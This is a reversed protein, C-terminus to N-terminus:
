IKHIFIKKVGEKQQYQMHADEQYDRVNRHKESWNKTLYNKSIRQFLATLIIQNSMILILIQRGERRYQKAIKLCYFLHQKKRPLSFIQGLRLMSSTNNVKGIFIRQSRKNKICNIMLEKNTQKLRSPKELGVFFFSKAYM